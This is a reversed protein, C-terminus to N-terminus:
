YRAGGEARRVDEKVGRWWAVANRCNQESRKEGHWRREKENTLFMPTFFFFVKKKKSVVTLNATEKRKGKAFTVLRRGM